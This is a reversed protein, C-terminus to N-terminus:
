KTSQVWKGDLDNLLVVMMTKKLKGSTDYVRGEIQIEKM